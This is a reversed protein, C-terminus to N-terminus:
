SIEASTQRRDTCSASRARADPTVTGSASRIMKEHALIWPRSTACSSVWKSSNAFSSAHGCATDEADSPQPKATMQVSPVHQERDNDDAASADAESRRRVLSALGDMARTGAPTAWIKMLGSVWGTFTTAVNGAPPAVVGFHPRVWGHFATVRGRLSPASGSAVASAATTTQSAEASRSRGEWRVGCWQTAHRM